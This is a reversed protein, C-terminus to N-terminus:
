RPISVSAGNASSQICLFPRSNFRASIQGLARNSANSNAIPRSTAANGDESAPAFVVNCSTM